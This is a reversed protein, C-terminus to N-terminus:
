PMLSSMMMVRLTEQRGGVGERRQECESDVGKGGGGRVEREGM